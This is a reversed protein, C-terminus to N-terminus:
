GRGEELARLIIELGEEMRARDTRLHLVCIRTYFKGQIETGTVMIRRSKNIRELLDRNRRNEEELDVSSHRQRFAFLSLEPPATIEVDEIASLRRWAEVALDRKLELESRFSAIGHLKFPLWLRLGRWARSLEPSIERSVCM